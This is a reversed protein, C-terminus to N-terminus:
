LHAASPLLLTQPLISTEKFDLTFNRSAKVTLRLETLVKCIQQRDPRYSSDTQHCGMALKDAINILAM